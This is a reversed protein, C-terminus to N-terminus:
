VHNRDKTKTTWSRSVARLHLLSNGVFTPLTNCHTAHAAAHRLAHKGFDPSMRVVLLLTHKGFFFDWGRKWFCPSIRMLLDKLSDKRLPARDRSVGSGKVAIRTILLAESVPSKGALLARDKKLLLLSPDKDQVLQFPGPWINGFTSALCCLGKRCFLGQKCEQGCVPGIEANGRKFVIGVNRMESVRKNRWFLLKFQLIDQKELADRGRPGAYFTWNVSLVVPQM